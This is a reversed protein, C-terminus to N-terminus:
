KSLQRHIVLITLDDTPPQGERFRLLTEEISALVAAATHDKNKRVTEILREDGFPEGAPSFSETVGDTYMVLVDDPAIEINHDQYEADEIVGLAIGGHPLARATRKHILIPLNHGANAYVLLGTKMNLIGFASTVFMGNITDLSLLNNVYSLVLAPSPQNQAIARILTRTVTMYLAAPMGKDAVDAVVFGMLDDGLPFFDYFDGGVERATQWRLDVEWGPIEPPRDPLFTQQIQRALQVEREIRERNVMEEQQHENQIALAIQQSIGTIIELRRDYTDPRISSEKTLLVGFREGKISLPFGLLWASGTLQAPTPTMDASFVAANAWKSAPTLAPPLPAVLLTDEELVSTLLDHDGKHHVTELLEVEDTHSQAFAKVPEFLQHEEDWVYIVAADLGVLIPLLHIITELVDDLNSQSVVAQAVQLLVATVYAEEQRADMLHNNLLAVSTQIAIGQLISLTQNDSTLNANKSGPTEYSVYFAGMFEGHASLPLLVHTANLGDLGPMGVKEDPKDVFLAVGSQRVQSLAISKEEAIFTDESPDFGYWSNLSYGNRYPDWIFFACKSVGVLLPTIRAMTSLLEDGSATSRSADSVQLLVTSIWAQEQAHTFLRATQIAAAAYSAFTTTMMRTESGYRGSTQHAITLVGLVNEGAKLPVAISSYEDTFGCAAGLPGVPDGPQRIIAEPANLATNLWDRIDLNEQRVRIIKEADVGRSAALVLSQGEVEATMTAEDMLWIASADCPLNRELEQLISQLLQEVAINATLLAAVERFSEGVQRRWQESRYVNANRIAVAIGASLAELLFVDNETFTGVKDSQLDLVGLVDTGFKLPLTLESRTNHPPLTSPIYLPDKEVDDAIRVEGTRATFPILGLPSDLDYTKEENALAESREGSGARYFIKRRGTHVTFIHVFPYHFRKHIVDVVTALLEDPDLISSLARSVEGITQIQEARWQLDAWMRAGDMAIAISSALARLVERDVEHFAHPHNSQVDLVGLVRDEVKLPLAFESRTEKLADIFRYKQDTGVDEALIEQGTAAVEGVIGQHKQVTFVAKKTKNKSQSASARFQLTEGQPEQTFIGVYYFEFTNQILTVVRQFLEDLDLLRAIQDSVQRVLMLQEYRWNKLVVQRIVQMAVAAHACLGDLFVMESDTFPAGSTRDALIIGLLAGQTQIPAAILQPGQLPSCEDEDTASIQCCMQREAVVKAILGTTDEPNLLPVEGEGPLPYNPPLLWIHVKCKLSKRVIESLHDIQGPTSSLALLSEGVKLFQRWEPNEPLKPTDFM